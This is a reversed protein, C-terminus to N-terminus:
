ATYKWSWELDLEAFYVVWIKHGIKGKLKINHIINYTYCICIFDFWKAINTYINIYM